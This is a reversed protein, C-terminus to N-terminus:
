LNKTIEENLKQRFAFLETNTPSYHYDVNGVTNEIFALVGERGVKTELLQLARYDCFGEYLVKMRLSPIATRDLGPYVVYSTGALKNYGCPNKAPDFLGQSLIDYYYNYGWHLFGKAGGVYMQLGLVRNRASPTPIIRNSCSRTLQGGTYYVWYNDANAVFKEIDPSDVLVIPIKVSGNEYYEYHSLADGSKFDKIKDGVLSQANKYFEAYEENPEDSIHFFINNEINMEKMFDKFASIYKDLFVAYDGSTADTDWGFIRKYEGDVTAMIKPAHKAGWQTFFHSHEFNYIGCERCISIFRKMLSFDFEYEDGSRTVSVLQVTMREGGVPTDLAPTFAPLLIMNMGTKAAETVFSRMIEFYEDSFVEIGYTDALCDNHFWSTYYISQQPLKAPIIDLALSEDALREGSVSSFFSVTINYTGPNIDEGNENVTFWLAQYSDSIASLQQKEGSEFHKKWSKESLMMQPNIRRKLLMDPYLGPTKREFYSDSNWYDARVVPVYGVSYETIYKVDIDTKIRIFIPELPDDASKYAIQFSFPENRFATARSIPNNGATDPFVKELSSILKTILQM